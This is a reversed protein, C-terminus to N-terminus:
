TLVNNPKKFKKQMNPNKRKHRQHESGSVLQQKAKRSRLRQESDECNSASKSVKIRSATVAPEDEKVRWNSGNQEDVKSVYIAEFSM